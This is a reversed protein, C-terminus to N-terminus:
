YAVSILVLLSSVATQPQEVKGAFLWELIIDPVRVGVQTLCVLRVHVYQQINGRIPGQWHCMRQQNVRATGKFIDPVACM